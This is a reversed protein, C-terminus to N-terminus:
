SGCSPLIRDGAFMVTVGNLKSTYVHKNHWYFKLFETSSLKQEVQNLKAFPDAKYYAQIHRLLKHPHITNFTFKTIL